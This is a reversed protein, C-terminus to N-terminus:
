AITLCIMAKKNRKQAIILSCSASPLSLVHRDNRQDYTDDTDKGCEYRKGIDDRYENGDDADDDADDGVTDGLAGTMLDDRDDAHDKTRRADYECDGNIDADDIKDM